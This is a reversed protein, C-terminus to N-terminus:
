IKWKKVTAAAIATAIVYYIVLLFELVSVNTLVTVSVVVSDYNIYTGNLEWCIALVSFTENPSAVNTSVLTSFARTNPINPICFYHFAFSLQTRCILTVICTKCM